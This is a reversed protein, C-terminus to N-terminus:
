ASRRSAIAPAEVGSWAKVMAPLREERVENAAVARNLETLESPTFLVATTGINEPMHPMQTSGPIPVVWPTQAM